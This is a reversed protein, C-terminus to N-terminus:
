LTANGSSARSRYAATCACRWHDFLGDRASGPAQRCVMHEDAMTAIAAEPGYTCDIITGSREGGQLAIEGPELRDRRALQTNERLGVLVAVPRSCALAGDYVASVFVSGKVDDVEMKPRPDAALDRDVLDKGKHDRRHDAFMPAIKETRWIRPPLAASRTTWRAPKQYGPSSCPMVDVAAVVSSLVVRGLSAGRLRWRSAAPIARPRM